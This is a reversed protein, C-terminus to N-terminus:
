SKSLALDKCMLYAKKIENPYENFSLEPKDRLYAVSAVPSASSVYM